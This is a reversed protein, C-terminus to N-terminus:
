DPGHRAVMGERRRHATLRVTVRQLSREGCCGVYLCTGDATWLRYVYRGPATPITETLEPVSRNSAGIYECIITPM